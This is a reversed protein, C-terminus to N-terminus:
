FHTLCVCVPLTFIDSDFLFFYSRFRAAFTVAGVPHFSTRYVCLPGHPRPAHIVCVAVACACRACVSM